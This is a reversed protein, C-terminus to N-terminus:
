RPRTPRSARGLDRAPRVAGAPGAPLRHPRAPRREALRAARLRDQRDRRHRRVRRPRPRAGLDRLRRLGGGRHRRHGADVGPGRRVGRGQVLLRPRRRRAGAHRHDLRLRVAARGDPVTQFFTGSEGAPQLRWERLRAAAWDAARDFGPTLTRRGQWEPSALTTVFRHAAAGDVRATLPQASAPLGRGGPGGVGGPTDLSSADDAFAEARPIICKGCM